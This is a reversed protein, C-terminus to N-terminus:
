QIALTNYNNDDNRDQKYLLLFPLPDDSLRSYAVLMEPMPAHMCAHVVSNLDYTNIGM